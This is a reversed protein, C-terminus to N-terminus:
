QENRAGVYMPSGDKTVRLCCGGMDNVVYQVGTDPDTMVYWKIAQGDSTYNVTMSDHTQTRPRETASENIRRVMLGAFIALVGVMLLVVVAVWFGSYDKDHRKTGQRIDYEYRHNM